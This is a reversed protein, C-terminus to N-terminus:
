ICIYIHILYISVYVYKCVYMCISVFNIGYQRQRRMKSSTFLTQVYNVYLFDSAFLPFIHLLYLNFSLSCYFKLHFQNRDFTKLIFAFKTKVRTLTIPFITSHIM